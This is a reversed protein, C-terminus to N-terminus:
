EFRVCGKGETALRVLDTTRIDLADKIHLPAGSEAAARAIPLLDDMTYHTASLALGGGARAIAMLESVNKESM